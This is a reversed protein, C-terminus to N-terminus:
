NGCGGRKGKLTAGMQIFYWIMMVIMEIKNEGENFGNAAYRTMHMFFFYGNMFMSMRHTTCRSGTLIANPVFVYHSNFILFFGVLSTVLFIAWGGVGAEVNPSNTRTAPDHM